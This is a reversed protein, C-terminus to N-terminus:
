HASQCINISPSLAHQLQQKEKQLAIQVSMLPKKESIINNNMMRVRQELKVDSLWLNLANNLKFDIIIIKGIKLELALRQFLAFIVEVFMEYCDFTLKLDM